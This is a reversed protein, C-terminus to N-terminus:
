ATGLSAANLLKAILQESLDILGQENSLYKLVRHHKLDFPVDDINQTIPIVTRGLTHAIGTEYMVNPNKGSFDSIVVHAKFILNFIDQIITPEDWRNDARVCRHKAATCAYNIAEHVGNFEASFPMMVAILDPERQVDPVKFVVPSFLIHRDQQFNSVYEGVVVGFENALYMRIVDIADPSKQRIARLVELINSSYDEDNWSLSRLLRSHGRIINECNAMLGIDSWSNATFNKEIEDRLGLLDFDPHRKM